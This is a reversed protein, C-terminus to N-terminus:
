QVGLRSNAEKEAHMLVPEPISGQSVRALLAEDILRVVVSTAQEGSYTAWASILDSTYCSLSLSLRRREKEALLTM